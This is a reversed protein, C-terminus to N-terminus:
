DWNTTELKLSQGLTNNNYCTIGHTRPWAGTAISCWNPPTVSPLCGIMALNSNATGEDLLKKLNPMKGEDMLRRVQVPDAADLGIMMARKLNGM